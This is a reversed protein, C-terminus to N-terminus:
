ALRRNRMARQMFATVAAHLRQPPRETGSAIAQMVDVERQSVTSLVEVCLHAKSPYYRLRHRHGAM